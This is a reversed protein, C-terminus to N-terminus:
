ERNPWFARGLRSYALFAGGTAGLLFGAVGLLGYVRTQFDAARLLPPVFAMVLGFTGVVTGLFVYLWSIRERQPMRKSELQLDYRLDRLEHALVNRFESTTAFNQEQLKRYLDQLEREREKSIGVSHAVNELKHALSSSLESTNMQSRAWQEEIMKALTDIKKEYAKLSEQELASAAARLVDSATVESANGRRRVAEDIAALRLEEAFAQTREEIAREAGPTFEVAGTTTEGAM